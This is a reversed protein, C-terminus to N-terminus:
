ERAQQLYGKVAPGLVSELSIAIFRAGKKRWQRATELNRVMLGLAVDTPAVADAIRQMAAQVEPHPPPARRGGGPPPTPHPPPAVVLGGGWRPN